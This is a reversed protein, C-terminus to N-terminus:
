VLSFQLAEVPHVSKCLKTHSTHCLGACDSHNKDHFRQSSAFPVERGGGFSSPNCASLLFLLVYFGVLWGFGWFLGFVECILVSFIKALTRKCKTCGTVKATM